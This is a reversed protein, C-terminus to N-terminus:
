ISLVVCSYLLTVSSELTLSETLYTATVVTQIEKLCLADPIIASATTYGIILSVGHKQRIRTQEQLISEAAHSTVMPIMMKVCDTCNKTPVTEYNCGKLRGIGLGVRWDEEGKHNKSYFQLMVLPQDFIKRTCWLIEGEYHDQISDWIVNCLSCGGEKAQRLAELNPHHTYETNNDPNLSFVTM